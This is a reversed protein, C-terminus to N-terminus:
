NEGEWTRYVRWLRELAADRDGLLYSAAASLTHTRLDSVLGGGELRHMGQPLVDSNAAWLLAEPHWPLRSLCDPATLDRLLAAMNAKLLALTDAELPSASQYGLKPALTLGKRELKQKLTM